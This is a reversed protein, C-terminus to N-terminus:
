RLEMTAVGRSTSTYAATVFAVVAVIIQFPSQDGFFQALQM